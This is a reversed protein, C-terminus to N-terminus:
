GGHSQRAKSPPARAAAASPPEEAPDTGASLLERNHRPAAGGHSRAGSGKGPIPPQGRAANGCAPADPGAAAPEMLDSRCGDSHAAPAQLRGLPSCPGAASRNPEGNPSQVARTDV